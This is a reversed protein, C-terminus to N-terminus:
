WFDMDFMGDNSDRGRQRGACVLKEIMWEGSFNLEVYRKIPSRVTNKCLIVIM